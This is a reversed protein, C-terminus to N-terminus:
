SDKLFNEPLHYLIIFAVHDYMCCLQITSCEWGAFHFREGLLHFLKSHYTSYIQDERFYQFKIKLDLHFRFTKGFAGPDNTLSKGSTSPISKGQYLWAIREWNM